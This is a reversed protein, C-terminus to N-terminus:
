RIPARSPSNKPSARIPSRPRSNRTCGSSLRRAPDQGARVRRDLFQIGLESLRGRGHDARGAVGVRAAVVVGGARRAQEGPDPRAGARAARFLLGGPRCHNRPDSGARGQVARAARRVQRRAQLARRDHAGLQRRRGLCLQNHRAEARATDVLDKVSKYKGHAVVLVSPLNAVPIVAAFDKASTM